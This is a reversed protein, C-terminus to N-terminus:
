ERKERFEGEIVSDDTGAPANRRGAFNGVTSSFRGLVANRLWPFTLLFTGTFGTFVAAVSDGRTLFILFSLAVLTVMLPRRLPKPLLGVIRLRGQSAWPFRAFLVGLLLCALFRSTDLQDALVGVVLSGTYTLTAALAVLVLLAAVIFLKPKAM